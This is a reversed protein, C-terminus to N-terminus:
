ARLPSPWRQGAGLWREGGAVAMAGMGFYVGGDVRMCDGDAAMVMEAAMVIAAMVIAAAM